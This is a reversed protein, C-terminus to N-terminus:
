RINQSRDTCGNSGWMMISLAKVSKVITLMMNQYQNTSVSVIRKPIKDFVNRFQISPNMGNKIMRDLEKAQSDTIRFSVKRNLNRKDSKDSM